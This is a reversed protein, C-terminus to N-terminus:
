ARKKPLRDLLSEVVSLIPDRVSLSEYLTSLAPSCPRGDRAGDAQERDLGHERLHARRTRALVECREKLAAVRHNAPCGAEAPLAEVIDALTREALDLSEREADLIEIADVRRQHAASATELVREQLGPTVRVAHQLAIAVDQGLEAALHETLPDGYVARYHPVEMVTQEYARRLVAPSTAGTDSRLAAACDTDPPAEPQGCGTSLREVRKCFQDLAGREDVYRRRVVRLKQHAAEFETSLQEGPM